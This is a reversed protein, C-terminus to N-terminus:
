IFHSLARWTPPSVSLDSWRLLADITVLHLKQDTKEAELIPREFDTRSFLYRHVAADVALPLVTCKADLDQLTKLVIPATRYKCEGVLVNKKLADTAVINIEQDKHWWRGISSAFFPLQGDFNRRVLYEKCCAEFSDLAFESVFPAVAHKWVTAAASATPIETSQSAIFRFWFKLFRDSIKYLGRAANGQMKTSTLAPYEREVLEMNLLVNLYATLKSPAVFSKQSIENFSTAGFAIARLIGNYTTPDRFESILLSIPEQNLFGSSRLANAAM